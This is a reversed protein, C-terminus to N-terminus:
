GTSYRDRGLDVNRRKQRLYRQKQLQVPRERVSGTTAVTDVAMREAVVVPDAFRNGGTYKERVVGLFIM